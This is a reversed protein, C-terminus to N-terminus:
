FEEENDLSLFKTITPGLITRLYVILGVLKVLPLIVCGILFDLEGFSEITVM